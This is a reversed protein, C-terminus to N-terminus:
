ELSESSVEVCLLRVFNFGVPVPIIGVGHGIKRSLEVSIAQPMGNELAKVVCDM